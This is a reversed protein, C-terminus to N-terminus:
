ESRPVRLSGLTLFPRFRGTKRKPEFRNDVDNKRPRVATDRYVLFIAGPTRRPALNQFPQRPGRVFTVDPAIRSLPISHVCTRRRLLRCARGDEHISPVASVSSKSLGRSFEPHSFMRWSASPVGTSLAGQRITHVTRFESGEERPPSSILFLSFLNTHSAYM